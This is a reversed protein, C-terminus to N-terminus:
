QASSFIELLAEHLVDLLRAVESSTTVPTTLMM